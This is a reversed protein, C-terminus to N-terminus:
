LCTGVKLHCMNLIEKDVFRDQFDEPIEKIAESNRLLFMANPNGSRHFHTVWCYLLECLNM